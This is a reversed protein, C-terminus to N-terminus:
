QLVGGEDVRAALIDAANEINYVKAFAAALYALGDAKKKSM